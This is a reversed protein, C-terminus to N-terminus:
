AHISVAPTLLDNRVDHVLGPEVIRVASAHLTTSWTGLLPDARVETLGGEVVFAVASDSHAHLDTVQSPLWTLLWIDVGLPGDLRVWYRTAATFRVLSRWSRPRSALRRALV